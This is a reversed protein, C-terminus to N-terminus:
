CNRYFSERLSFPSSLAFIVTIISIIVVSMLSMILLPLLLMLRALRDCCNLYYCPRIYRPETSLWSILWCFCFLYSYHYRDRYFFISYFAIIVIIIVIYQINSLCYFKFRAQEGTPKIIFLVNRGTLTPNGTLGSIKWTRKWGSALIMNVKLGKDATWFIIWEM